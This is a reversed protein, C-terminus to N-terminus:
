FLADQDAPIAPRESRTAARQAATLCDPCWARLATVPLSIATVESVTLDAPAVHLTV